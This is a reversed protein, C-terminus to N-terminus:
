AVDTRNSSHGGNRYLCLARPLADRKSLISHPPHLGDGHVASAERRRDQAVREKATEAVPCDGTGGNRTVRLTNSYKRQLCGRWESGNAAVEATTAMTM